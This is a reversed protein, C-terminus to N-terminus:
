GVTPRYVTHRDRGAEVLPLSVHFLSPM